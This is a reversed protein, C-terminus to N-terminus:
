QGLFFFGANVPGLFEGSAFISDRIIAGKFTNTRNLDLDVFSGSVIGNAPAITMKLYNPNPGVVSVTNNTTLFVSIILPSLLDGGDIIITADSLDSFRKGATPSVYGSALIDTTNTFGDPYYASPPVTKKKIWNVTGTINTVVGSANTISIWSIMSGKGSYLPMYLPWLGNKGISTTASAQAEATGDGLNGSISVLGNSSVTVVGYCHGVPAVTPDSSGPIIFTYKGANPTPSTNSFVAREGAYPATWGDVPSSVTGTVTDSGGTLDLQLDVSLAAKGLRAVTLHAAGSPDFNISSASYIKGEMYIKPSFVGNSNVTFTLFGSTEFTVGNTEYFLGNYTGAVNTTFPSAVFNASLELNTKMTFTLKPTSALTGDNGTWNSFVQGSGPLATISYTKGIELLHGDINTSITGVGNTIITLASNVVLFFSRTAVLSQNGSYDISKATVTNTGGVLQGDLVAYWNKWSNTTSAAQYSGGNLRYLVNTVQVNDSATGRVTAVNNSIRSSATPISIALLPIASDALVTLLANSSLTLGGVNSVTVSYSGQNALQIGGVTYSTTTAGSIPTGEFNWQYSLPTTAVATVSFTNATGISNTHSLPQKTITPLVPTVTITFNTQSTQNTGGLGVGGNDQLRVSVTASGSNNAKPRFTLTGSSSIAPQVVFLANNNNTVIFTLTQASENASGASINTAFNANTQALVNELVTLANTRLTFSPADNVALINLTVTAPLSDNIGDNIIYTFVGSGNYNADPTFTINPPTGTVTGHTLSDTSVVFSKTRGAFVSGVLTISTPTDEIVNLSLNNALPYDYILVSVINTGANAIALDTVTDGNFNSGVIVAPQSDVPFTGGSSFTGAGLNLLISIDDSGSNAVALDANADNNLDRVLISRPNTGVAYNTTLLFTGNTQAMLISVTNSNYNATVIDLRGDNNLDGTMAAYPQPDGGSFLTITVAAAFTGNTVGPLITLTGDTSNATLIDVVGDGTVDAVVVSRPGTGVAYNTAAAFVGNGLGRLISVSNESYNAVVLDLKNDRNFDGVAIAVPNPNATSGVVFNTATGLTGNGQNKLISITNTGSNAVAIDEFGDRNFDGAMVAAPNLGVSYTTLAGFTGDDQCLRVGLTGDNYNAVAMDRFNAHGRLNGLWIGSPADGTTYNTSSYSVAFTVVQARAPLAVLCLICLMLQILPFAAKKM